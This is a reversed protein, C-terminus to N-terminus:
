ATRKREQVIALSEVFLRVVLPGLLAGTAGFAAVGGVMSVLVVFTPLNLHGFRAIMPRVFNDVLAHVGAGMAIVVGMQWYEGTAALVIALPIWVLGTGIFPIIACVATLPGLILARPIGIAVYAVTALTGQVLATGGGAILLGRGTEQFAGALRAFEEHTIPAHQELWAYVRAGDVVFTYLAAVFVLAAIAASASTRAVVALTRWTNAGYRSALDAWDRVGLHSGASSGLVSALSGQGEIATRVQVLLDQTATALALGIGVLPLLIAVALLVVLAGAARRRGRLVRELKRLIPRLMDAFWAALVLPAWLPAIVLAAAVCLGATVASM